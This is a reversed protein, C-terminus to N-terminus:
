ELVADPAESVQFLFVVPEGASPAPAHFVVLALQYLPVLSAAHFLAFVANNPTPPAPPVTVM